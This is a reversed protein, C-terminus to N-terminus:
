FVGSVIAPGLSRAPNMSAGTIPGVAIVNILVATGIALGALDKSGRHDTAVGCITFMLIFTAMFEWAIAELHSTSGSYQTVVLRIDAQGEYLVKLTLSALTAGMLQSM